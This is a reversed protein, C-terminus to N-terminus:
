AASQSSNRAATRALSSPPDESLQRIGEAFPLASVLDSAFFYLNRRMADPTEIVAVHAFESALVDALPEPEQFRMRSYAYDEGPDIVTYGSLVGDAALSRHVSALIVAVESLTFHHMASDWIVNHFPGEPIGTLIDCSRYEINARAHFRRAHALAERSHDVALVRACREAYFRHANFGDGCCLELVEAGPRIALTNLVGRELFMSRQRSAWQWYVDVEHDFWEASPRLFGEVRYQLRHSAACVARLAANCRRLAPVLLRYAGSFLPAFPASTALRRRASRLADGRSMAEPYRAGDMGARIKDPTFSGKCL